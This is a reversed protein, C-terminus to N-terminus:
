DIFHCIVLGCKEMMYVRHVSFVGPTCNEFSWLTKRSPFHNEEDMEQRIKPTKACFLGVYKKKLVKCVSCNVIILAEFTIAYLLCQVEYLATINPQTDPTFRRERVGKPLGSM